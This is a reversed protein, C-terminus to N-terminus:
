LELLPEVECENDILLMNSQLLIFYCSLSIFVFM